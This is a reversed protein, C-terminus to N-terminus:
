QKSRQHTGLRLIYMVAPSALKYTDIDAAAQQLTVHGGSNKRIRWANQPFFFSTPLINWSTKKEINDLRRLQSKYSDVTQKRLPASM